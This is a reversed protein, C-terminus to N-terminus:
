DGGTLDRRRQEYEERNIEGRAYREDLIAIASSASRRDPGDGGFLWRVVTLLGVIVLGLIALCILGGLPWGDHWWWGHMPGPMPSTQALTPAALALTGFLGIIL